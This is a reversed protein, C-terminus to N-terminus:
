FSYSYSISIIHRNPRGTNYFRGDYIYKLGIAHDGLGEHEAGLEARYKSFGPGNPGYIPNYFFEIGAAPTIPIDDIDYELKTKLRIAQDFDADYNESFRNQFAYQYRLRLSADLRDLIEEKAILNLNIRNSFSYNKVDNRESILRYDVSAKLWKKVKYDLGVQPFFSRMGYSDFRANLEASWDLKRVLDGSFEASFWQHFESQAKGGFPLLLLLFLIRKM